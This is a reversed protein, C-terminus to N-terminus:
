RAILDAKTKGTVKVGRKKLLHKLEVVKMEEPCLLEIDRSAM